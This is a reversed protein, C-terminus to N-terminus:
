KARAAFETAVMDTFPIRRASELVGGKVLIEQFKVVAAEEIAPTAKWIHINRYNEAGATLAARSVGPFYPEMIQVIEVSPASQVWRQAKYIANTWRQVTEPNDAIYKETAMFTTYDVPGVTQGISAAFHANGELILQSAEPESFIAFQNQGTSWAAFRAPPAVNNNLTVDRAPDIGNLRLAAELFLLPTSNPRFGLVAKAKVMDWQFKEVKDHSLLMWGDTATMGCFIRPKVLSESNRVYVATEPGILAIDASGGILAAMSKDGGQATTMTVDLGAEEFYGKSIAVYAPAFMLSRVVENYRVKVPAPRQALTLQSSGTLVAVTAIGAALLTRRKIMPQDEQKQNRDHAAFLRKGHPISRPM